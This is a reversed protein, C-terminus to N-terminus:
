IHKKKVFSYKASSEKSKDRDKNSKLGLLMSKTLDEIRSIRNKPKSKTRSRGRDKKQFNKPKVLEPSLPCNLTSKMSRLTPTGEPLIESIEEAIEFPNVNSDKKQEFRPNNSASGNDHKYASKILTDFRGTKKSTSHSM